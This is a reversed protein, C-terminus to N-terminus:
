VAPNGAHRMRYDEGSSGAGRDPLAAPGAIEAMGAAAPAQEVVKGSNRARTLAM